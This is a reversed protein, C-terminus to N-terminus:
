SQTEHSFQEVVEDVDAFVIHNPQRRAYKLGVVSAEQKQQNSTLSGHTPHTSM